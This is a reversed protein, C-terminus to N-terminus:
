HHHHEHSSHDDLSAEKILAKLTIKQKGASIILTVSDGRALKRQPKILMLHLGGPKFITEAHAPVVISKQEIMRAMGDKTETRHMEVKKFDPSSVTTVTIEKDSINKLTMYGAMVSAVPPAEPVWADTITLDDGARAILSLSIFSIGILTKLM